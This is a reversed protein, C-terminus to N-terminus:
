PEIRWADCAEVGISIHTITDQLARNKAALFQCLDCDPNEDRVDDTLDYVLQWIMQYGKRGIGKLTRIRMLTLPQMLAGITDIKHEILIAKTRTDLQEQDEIKM